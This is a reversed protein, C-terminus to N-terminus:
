KGARRHPNGASAARNKINQRVYALPSLYSFKLDIRNAAYEVAEDVASRGYDRVLEAYEEATPQQQWRSLDPFKAMIRAFEERSREDAYERLAAVAEDYEAREDESPTFEIGNPDNKKAEFLRVTEAAKEEAMRVRTHANKNEGELVKTRSPQEKFSTSPIVTIGKKTDNQYGKESILPIMKSGKKHTDNQYGKGLFYVAKEGRYNAGERRVIMGREVLTHLTRQLTIKPILLEAQMQALSQRCEGGNWDCNDAVYCFVVKETLSLTADKLVWGKLRVFASDRM